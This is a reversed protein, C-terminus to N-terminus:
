QWKGNWESMIKRVAFPRNYILNEVAMARANVHDPKSEALTQSSGEPMFVSDYGFGGKGTSSVITGTVDGKFIHVNEEERYALLVIWHAKRGVYDKLHELFWKIHIGVEAGEIDLSTDDVLVRKEMQSAKYIVVTLPDADIEPQDIKTATLTAGYKAFLLQYEHLKGESSTNILYNM